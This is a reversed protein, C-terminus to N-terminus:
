PIKNITLNDQQYTATTEIFFPEFQKLNVSPWYEACTEDASKFNEVMVITRIDEDYVLKWFDLITSHLPTQTIIFQNKQLYGDVYLANIYDTASSGGFSQLVPRHKEAPIVDLYRNKRLNVELLGTKM